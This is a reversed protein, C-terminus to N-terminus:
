TESSGFGITRFGARAAQNYADVVHQWRVRHMAEILLSADKAGLLDARRPLDLPATRIFQTTLLFFLILQFTCDIMPTINFSMRGRRDLRRKREDM